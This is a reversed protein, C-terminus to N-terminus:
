SSSKDSLVGSEINFKNNILSEQIVEKLTVLTLVGGDTEKLLKM